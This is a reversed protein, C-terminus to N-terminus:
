ECRSTRVDWDVEPIQNTRFELNFCHRHMVDQNLNAPWTQALWFRLAQVTDIARRDVNPIKNEERGSWESQYEGSSRCQPM